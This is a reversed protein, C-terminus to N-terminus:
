SKPSRTLKRYPALSELLIYGYNPNHIRPDLVAVLGKHERIRGIGRQLRGQAEPLLYSRFWDQREKKMREVKTAVLPVQLDPFPLSLMVLMEPAFASSLGQEWFSWDCLTISRQTEQVKDLSVRSGFQAALTAGIRKRLSYDQLLVVLPGRAQLALLEILRTGWEYFPLETNRPPIWVQLEDQCDSPFQLCTLEGLGLRHRYAPASKQPDLAEGIIVVPREAWLKQVYPRVDIPAAVLTFQGHQRHIVASLLYNPDDLCRRFDNWPPYELSTLLQKLQSELTFDLRQEPSKGVFLYRTAAVTFEFVKSALPEGQERLQQWEGPEIRFELAKRSWAELNHAQDFVVPIPRPFHESGNKLCDQLFVLPDALLVGNWNQSPWTKGQLIPKSFIELEQLRPLDKSLLQQQVFSPACLIVPQPWSLAPFLYSLRYASSGRVGSVQILASRGTALARAILRAM